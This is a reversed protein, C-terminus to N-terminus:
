FGMNIKKFLPLDSQPGCCVFDLMISMELINKSSFTQRTTHADCHSSLKLCQCIVESGELNSVM